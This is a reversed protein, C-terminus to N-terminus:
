TLTQYRLLLKLGSQKGITFYKYLPLFKLYGIYFPILNDCLDYQTPIFTYM